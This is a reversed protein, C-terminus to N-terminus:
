IGSCRTLETLLSLLVKKPINAEVETPNYEIIEGTSINYLNKIDIIQSVIMGIAKSENSGLSPLMKIQAATWPKIRFIPRLDIDIEDYEKPTFDYSFDTNVPLLGCLRSRLEDSFERM